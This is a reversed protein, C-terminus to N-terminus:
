EAGIVQGDVEVDRGVSAGVGLVSDVVRAGENVSSGPLLVSGSVVARSGVSCGESVVARPGIGADPAVSARESVVVGDGATEFSTSMRGEVIDWTAELYREPTGIDMWYGDLRCGFLGSGALSPFVEREISVERGDEVEEIVSRELMYIGSNVLGAGGGEPKERFARVDDDPGLDVAGFASADPVEKLGITARAGRTRHLEILPTLDIDTLLDGNLALFRDEMRDLAFRMAGATGRPEPEEVWVLDPGGPPGSGIVDRIVDPRFGCAFVIEGVGNGALWEIVFDLFPRDVLTLAPKPIEATLPLLRTGRGGVLVLAQM